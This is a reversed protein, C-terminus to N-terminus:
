LRQALEFMLASPLSGAIADRGVRAMSMGGFSSIEFADAEDVIEIWALEPCQQRIDNRLADFAGDYVMSEYVIAQPLGRKCSARADAVSGVCEVSLKMPAVTQRIQNVVERRVAIVLVQTGALSQGEATPGLSDISDIAVAGKLSDNPTHPFELTLTTDTTTDARDIHLSMIRVLQMLLLWSVCDLAPMFHGGDGRPAGGPVQDPPTHGFRCVLRAHAPWAKTDLRLDLPTRAHRLSWDLVTGVLASLLTPDAVVEVPKVLQKIALGRAALEEQRQALVERLATALDVAEPQQQVVGRSLRAIQQGLMAAHRAQEISQVLAHLEARDIRGIAQMTRVSDLAPTLSRAVEIAVQDALAYAAETTEESASPHRSSGSRVPTSKSSLESLDM